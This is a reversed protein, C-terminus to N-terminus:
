IETFIQSFGAWFLAVVPAGGGNLAETGQERLTKMDAPLFSGGVGVVVVGGEQM